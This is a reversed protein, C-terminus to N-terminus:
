HSGPFNFRILDDRSVAKLAAKIAPDKRIHDTHLQSPPFFHILNHLPTENVLRAIEPDIPFHRQQRATDFKAQYEETEELWNFQNGSVVRFPERTAAPTLTAAPRLINRDAAPIETAVPQFLTQNPAPAETPASRSNDRNAAPTEPAAPQFVNHIAAPTETAVPQIDNHTAAPTEKHSVGSPVVNTVAPTEAAEHDGSDSSAVTSNSLRSVSRLTSPQKPTFRLAESRLRALSEESKSPLKPGPLAAHSPTPAPPPDQQWPQSTGVNRTSWDVGKGSGEYTNAPEAERGKGDYTSTPEVVKGKDADTNSLEILSDDSDSDDPVTFTRNDIVPPVSTNSNAAVYGSDFINTIPLTSDGSLFPANRAPPAKTATTHNSVHSAGTNTQRQTLPNDLPFRTDATFRVRKAARLSPSPEPEPESPPEFLPEITAAAEKEEDSDGGFFNLDMGYSSGVPNPIVPPSFRKRKGGASQAAEHEAKLTEYVKRDVENQIMLKNAELMAKRREEKDMKEKKNKKHAAKREESKSSKKSSKSPKSSKKKLQKEPKEINEGLEARSDATFTTDNATPTTVIINPTSIHALPSNGTIVNRNEDSLKLPTRRFIPLLRSAARVSGLVSGIGWSRSPTQPQVHVEDHVQTASAEVAGDHSAARRGNETDKGFGALFNGAAYSPIEEVLSVEKDDADAALVLNGNLDYAPINLVTATPSMRVRKSPPYGQRSNESRRKTSAPVIASINSSRLSYSNLFKKLDARPVVVQVNPKVTTYKAALTTKSPSLWAYVLAKEESHLTSTEVSISLTDESIASTSVAEESAKRTKRTPLPLSRPPSPVMGAQQQAIGQARRSFADTM